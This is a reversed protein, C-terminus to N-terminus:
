CHIEFTSEGAYSIYQVYHRTNQFPIITKSVQQLVSCIVVISHSIYTKM